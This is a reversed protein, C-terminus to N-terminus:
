QVHNISQEILVLGRLATEYDRWAIRGFISSRMDYGNSFTRKSLFGIYRENSYVAAYLLENGVAGQRFVRSKLELM